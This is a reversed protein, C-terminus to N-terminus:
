HHYKRQFGLLVFLTLFLSISGVPLSFLTWSTGRLDRRLAFTLRWLLPLSLRFLISRFLPIRWARLRALRLARRWGWLIANATGLMRHTLHWLRSLPILLNLSGLRLALSIIL